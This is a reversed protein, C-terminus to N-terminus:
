VRSKSVNPIERNMVESIGHATGFTTLQDVGTREFFFVHVTLPSKGAIMQVAEIEVM